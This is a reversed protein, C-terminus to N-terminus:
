LKKGRYHYRSLNRILEKKEKELKSIEEHTEKIRDIKELNAESNKYLSNEYIKDSVRKELYEVKYRTDSHGANFRSKTVALFFKGDYRKVIVVDSIFSAKLFSDIKQKLKKLSEDKIYGVESNQDTHWFEMGESFEIKIGLHNMKSFDSM